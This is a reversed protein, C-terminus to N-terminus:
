HGVILLKILVEHDSKVLRLKIKDDENVWRLDSGYCVLNCKNIETQYYQTKM